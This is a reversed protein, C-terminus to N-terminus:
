RWTTHLCCDCIKTFERPLYYPRISLSLYEINCDCYHGYIKMDKSWRNNVYVCVGGGQSKGSEESSRDGRFLTFGNLNYVSDPDKEQLWTETLCILSSERYTYNFRALATLEDIKNRLSQVNGCTMMPMALRYGRRRCRARIGGRRGRRRTRKKIDNLEESSPYDYPGESFQMLQDRSYSIVGNQKNVFSTTLSAVGSLHDCLM